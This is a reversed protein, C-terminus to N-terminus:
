EKSLSYIAIKKLVKLQEYFEEKNCSIRNFILYYQHINIGSNIDENGELLKIEIRFTKIHKVREEFEEDLFIIDNIDFNIPPIQYYIQFSNDAIDEFNIKIETKDYEEKIKEKFKKKLIIIINNKYKSEINKINMELYNIDGKRPKFCNNEEKKTENFFNIIKNCIMNLKTSENLNEEKNKKTNLDIKNEIKETNLNELPIINKNIEIEKEIINSNKKSIIPIIDM